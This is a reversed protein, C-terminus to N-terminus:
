GTLGHGEGRGLGKGLGREEVRENDESDEIGGDTRFLVGRLMRSMVFKFPFGRSRDDIERFDDEGQVPRSM